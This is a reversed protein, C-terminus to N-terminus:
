NHETRPFLQVWNDGKTTGKWGQTLRWPDKESDRQFYYWYINKPEAEKEVWLAVTQPYPFQKVDHPIDAGFECHEGKSFGPVKGDDLLQDFVVMASQVAPVQENDDPISALEPRTAWSACLGLAVVALSRMFFAFPIRRM